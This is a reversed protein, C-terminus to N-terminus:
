GDAEDDFRSTAKISSAAPYNRQFRRELLQAAVLTVVVSGVVILAALKM